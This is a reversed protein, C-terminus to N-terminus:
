RQFAHVPVDVGGPHQLGAGVEEGKCPGEGLLACSRTGTETESSIYHYLHTTLPSM